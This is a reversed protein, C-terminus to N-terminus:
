FYTYIETSIIDDIMCHNRVYGAGPGGLVFVVQCPVLKNIASDQMELDKRTYKTALYLTFATASTAFLVLSFPCIKLSSPVSLSM